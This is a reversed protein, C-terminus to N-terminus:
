RPVFPLFTPDNTGNDIKSAVALLPQDARLTLRAGSVSASTFLRLVRDLQVSTGAAVPLTVEGLTAGDSATASLAARADVTGANRLVLNTRFRVDEDIGAIDAASVAQDRRSAPLEQAAIGLPGLTSTVSSALLPSDATIALSGSADGAPVALRVLDRVFLVTGRALAFPVERAPQSAGRATFVLRGTATTEGPNQLWLDSTFVAGNAGRASAVAPVFLEAAAGSVRLALSGLPDNSRSNSVVTGYAHVRGKGVRLHLHIGSGLDSLQRWEGEALALEIRDVAHGSPGRVEVSLDSAELAFLGLNTRAAGDPAGFLVAEEGAGLAEAANVGPLYFGFTGAESAAATRAGALLSEPSGAEVRFSVAGATGPEALRAVVDEVSLSAGATVDYVATPAGPRASRTEGHFTARVRLPTEGRNAIVAESEWRAGNAGTLSATGPVVLDASDVSGCRAAATVLFTGDSEDSLVPLTGSLAELKLRSTDTPGCPLLVDIALVSAPLVPTLTEGYSAGGDRSYLLRYATVHQLPSPTWTVDVRSGETFSEGGNPTVLALRLLQAQAAATFLLSLAALSSLRRM